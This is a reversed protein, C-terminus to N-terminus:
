SFAEFRHKECTMLWESEPDDKDAYVLWSAIGKCLWCVTPHFERIM